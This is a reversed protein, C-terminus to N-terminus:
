NQRGALAKGVCGHTEAITHDWWSQYSLWKTHTHIGTNQTHTYAQTNHTHTHAQTNHTHTHRHTTHTHLIRANVSMGNVHNHPQQLSLLATTKLLIFIFGLHNGHTRPTVVSGLHGVVISIDNVNNCVDRQSAERIFANPQSSNLSSLSNVHGQMQYRQNSSSSSTTTNQNM